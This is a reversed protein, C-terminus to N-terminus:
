MQKGSRERMEDISWRGAGNILLYFLGILMCIDNRAEHAMSWFGYRAMNPAQFLWFDHGVLIPIKTTIIAVLMVIILPMTAFRTALGIVILTGCVVEMIGVFPGMLEPWPIGIHAFRGAGLIEPFVLKQIGEPIFVALGVLLRILITWSSMQHNDFRFSTM